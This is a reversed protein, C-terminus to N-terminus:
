GASPPAAEGADMGSEEAIVQDHCPQCKHRLIKRPCADVCVELCPFGFELCKAHDVEIRNNILKLAKAPCAKVCRMCSICGVQCVDSVAKLKDQTSCHVMVRARKPVLTMINRPCAKVCNGCGTCNLSLVLPMGDELVLANFQCAKVCDGYGVCAYTCAATGNNLRVAAACTDMGDYFHTTEVQGENRECRRFAAVPEADGASKGTLQGVKQITDPGGVCCLNAPVSPDGVVAAAYGDCGAYGCGGCNAGPLAESVMAIKPDEQVYFFKSAITLIVAAAFGIGALILFSTFFM